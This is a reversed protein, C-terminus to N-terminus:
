QVGVERMGGNPAIGVPVFCEDEIGEVKFTLGCEDPSICCAAIKGRADPNPDTVLSIGMECSSRDCEFAGSTGADRSRTPTGADQQGPMTTGPAGHTGADHAPGDGAAHGVSADTRTPQGSDHSAHGGDRKATPTNSDDGQGNEAGDDCAVTGIGIAVVLFVGRCSLTKRVM